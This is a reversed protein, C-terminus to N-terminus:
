LLATHLPWTIDLQPWKVSNVHVSVWGCDCASMELRACLWTSMASTNELPTPKEVIECSLFLIALGTWGDMRRRWENRSVPRGSRRRTTMLHCPSVRVCAWIYFAHRTWHFSAPSGQFSGLLCVPLVKSNDSCCHPRWVTIMGGSPQRSVSTYRLRLTDSCSVPYRCSPDTPKKM